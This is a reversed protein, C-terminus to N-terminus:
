MGWVQITRTQHTATRTFIKEDWTKGILTDAEDLMLVLPLPDAQAWESLLRNLANWGGFQELLAVMRNYPLDDKRLLQARTALEGLVARMAGAVNERAAQAPEINAYIARYRGAANLLEVLALLCSTKGTQRPVHLIFYRCAAILQLIVETNIRELPPICYHTDPQIAGTTNFFKM